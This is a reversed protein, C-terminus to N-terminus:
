AEIQRRAEEFPILPAPLPVSDSELNENNQHANRLAIMRSLIRTQDDRSYKEFYLPLQSYDVLQMGYLTETFTKNYAAQFDFQLVDSGNLPIKVRPIPDDVDFEYPYALGDELHPRPDIVVIRYPHAEANQPYPLLHEFTALSQHLYDIEAFVLGSHLVKLRKDRYYSTDQGGPKNSPSLLEIWAVPTKENSQTYIAIARYQAYKEAVDMLTTIAVAQESLSTQVQQARYPKTDYITIDSEPRGIPTDLQRIQLSQEIEAIYGLPMLQIRMLRMLDTIHNTHFGDWRGENQWYSHLHANVGHYQNKIARIATM